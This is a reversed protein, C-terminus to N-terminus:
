VKKKRGFLSFLGRDPGHLPSPAPPETTKTPFPRGITKHIDKVVVCAHSFTGCFADGISKIEQNTMM